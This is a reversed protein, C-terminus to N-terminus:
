GILNLRSRLSVAHDLQIDYETNPIGLGQFLQPFQKPFEKKLDGVIKVIALNSNAACSLLSTTRRPVYIDEVISSRRYKITSSLYGLINLPRM